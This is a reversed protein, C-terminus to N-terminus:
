DCGEMYEMMTNTLKVWQLEVDRLKQYREATFTHEQTNFLIMESVALQLKSLSVQIELLKTDDM